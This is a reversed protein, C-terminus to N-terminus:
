HMVSQSLKSNLARHPKEIWRKFARGSSVLGMGVSVLMIALSAMFTAVIGLYFFDFGLVWLGYDLSLVILPVRLPNYGFPSWNMPANYWGFFPASLTWSALLYLLGDIALLVVPIVFLGKAKRQFEAVCVTVVGIFCIDLGVIQLTIYVWSPYYLDSYRSCSGYSYVTFGVIVLFLCVEFMRTHKHKL